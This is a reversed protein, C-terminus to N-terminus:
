LLKLHKSGVGTLRNSPDERMEQIAEKERPAGDEQVHEEIEECESLDKSGCEPCKELRVEEVVNIKKPKKRFWGRHGMPAGRKKPELETEIIEEKKKRRGFWHSRIEKLDYELMVKQTELDQIRKDREELREQLQQCNSCSNRSM